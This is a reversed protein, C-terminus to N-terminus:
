KLGLIEADIRSFTLSWQSSTITSKNVDLIWNPETIGNEKETVTGSNDYAYTAIQTDKHFIWTQRYGIQFFNQHISGENKFYIQTKSQQGEETGNLFAGVEFELDAPLSNATPMAWIIGANKPLDEMYSALYM